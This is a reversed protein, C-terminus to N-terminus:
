DCCRPSRCQGFQNLSIRLARQAKSNRVCLSLFQGRCDLLLQFLPYAPLSCKAHNRGNRIIVVCCLLLRWDIAIHRQVIPRELCVNISPAAALTRFFRNRHMSNCDAVLQGQVFTWHSHEFRFLRSRSGRSRRAVASKTWDAFCGAADRRGHFHTAFHDIETVCSVDLSKRM